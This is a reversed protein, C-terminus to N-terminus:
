CVPGPTKHSSTCQSQTGPSAPSILSSGFSQSQWGSSQEGSAVATIASRPCTSSCVLGSCHFWGAGVIVSPM